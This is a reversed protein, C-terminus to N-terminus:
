RIQRFSIETVLIDIKQDHTEIPLADQLQLEFCIGLKTARFTPDVLLRDYYGGGHGLRGGNQPDFALGPIIALDIQEVRALPSTVPDPELMGFKARRLSDAGTYYHLDLGEPTVRPLILQKSDSEFFESIDPEYELPHFLLVNQASAWAESECLNEILLASRRTREAPSLERLKRLIKKRILPKQQSSIEITLDLKISEHNM